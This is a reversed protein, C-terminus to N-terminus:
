LCYSAMHQHQLSTVLISLSSKLVDLKQSLPEGSSMNTDQEKEETPTEQVEKKSELRVREELEEQIRIAEERQLKELRANHLAELIELERLRMEEYAQQTSFHDKQREKIEFELEFGKYESLM